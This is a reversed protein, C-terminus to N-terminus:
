MLLSIWRSNIIRRRRVASDTQLNSSASRQYWIRQRTCRRLKGPSLMGCQTVTTVTIWSACPLPYGTYWISYLWAFDSNLGVFLQIVQFHKCPSLACFNSCHWCITSLSFSSFPTPYASTDGTPTTVQIASQWLCYVHRCNETRNAPAAKCGCYAGKELCIPPTRTNLNSILRNLWTRSSISNLQSICICNNVALHPYLENHRASIIALTSNLQTRTYAM